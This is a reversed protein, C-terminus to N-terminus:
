REAKDETEYLALIWTIINQLFGISMENEVRYVSSQYDTSEVTIIADLVGSNDLFSLYDKKVILLMISSNLKHSYFNLWRLMDVEPLRLWNQEFCNASIIDSICACNYERKILEQQLIQALAKITSKNHQNYEIAILPLQAVVENKIRDESYDKLYGSRDNIVELCMHKVLSQKLTGIDNFNGDCILLEAIHATVYPAVLSNTMPISHCFEQALTKLVKPEQMNIQIDIGDVPDQYICGHSFVEKSAKVGIVSPLCAPYTVVDDNAGAAVIIINKRKIVTEILIHATIFDKVGISISIIDVEHETCWVIANCLM